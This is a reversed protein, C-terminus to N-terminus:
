RLLLNLEGRFHFSAPPAYMCNWYYERGIEKLKSTDTESERRIYFSARAIAACGWDCDGVEGEM